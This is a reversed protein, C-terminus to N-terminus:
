KKRDRIRKIWAEIADFFTEGWYHPTILGEVQPWPSPIGKLMHKLNSPPVGIFWIEAWKEGDGWLQIIGGPTETGDQNFLVLEVERRLYGKPM